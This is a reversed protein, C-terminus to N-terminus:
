NSKRNRGIFGLSLLGMGLLTLMSGGDPVTLSANFSTSQAGGGIHTIIIEETLSYPSGFGALAPGGSTGSFAGTTFSQSTLLTAGAISATHITNAADAYTNFTLSNGANASSVTGGILALAAGVPTAGFGDDSWRIILTGGSFSTNVSNLDMNPYQDTGLFPASQGTSVNLLWSGISGSFTVAGTFPNLDGAGGDTITVSNVGDSLYLTPVAHASTVAAVVALTSLIKKM